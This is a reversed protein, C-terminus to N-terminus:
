GRRRVGVLQGAQDRVLEALVPHRDLRHPDDVVADLRSDLGVHAVVPDADVLLQQGRLDEHDGRRRPESSRGRDRLPHEFPHVGHDGLGVVLVARDGVVPDGADDDGAVLVAGVV